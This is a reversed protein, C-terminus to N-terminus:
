LSLDLADVQVLKQAQKNPNMAVTEILKISPVKDAVPQPPLQSRIKSGESYNFFIMNSQGVSNKVTFFQTKAM